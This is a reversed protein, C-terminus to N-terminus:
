YNVVTNGKQPDKQCLVTRGHTMWEPLDDEGMFIRNIQLSVREHLSSLNKIWYGQSVTEGQPKGIQYREANNGKNGVSISVREQPDKDNVREREESREVM